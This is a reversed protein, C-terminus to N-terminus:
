QGLGVVDWRKVLRVTTTHDERVFELEDMLADLLPLGRGGEDLAEGESSSAATGTLRAPDIGPGLDYVMIECCAPDVTLAVGYEDTGTAHRVVNSCAESLAVTVDYVSEGPAHLGRLLSDAIERLVPVYRADRPLVLQLEIQAMSQSM